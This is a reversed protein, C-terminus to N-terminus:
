SMPSFPQSAERCPMSLHRRVARHSPMAPPTSASTNSENILMIMAEMTADRGCPTLEADELCLGMATPPPSRSRPRARRGSVAGGANDVPAVGPALTAGPEGEGIALLLLLLLAELPRLGSRSLGAALSTRHPSTVGQAAAIQLSKWAALLRTAATRLDHSGDHGASLALASRRTAARAALSDSSASSRECSKCSKPRALGM